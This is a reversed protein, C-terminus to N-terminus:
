LTLLREDYSRDKMGPLMRTALRQVQEICAIDKFYPAWAQVCYELHPRVFAKYLPIFVEPDKCTLASKLRFLENRAKQAAGRCQTEWKFNSTVRIGLDRVELTPNVVIREEDAQVNLEGKNTLLHCKDINLPMDWDKSWAFLKELDVKLYQREMSSM